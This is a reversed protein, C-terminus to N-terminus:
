LSWSLSWLHYEVFLKLSSSNVEVKHEAFLEVSFIDKSEIFDDHEDVNSMDEYEKWKYVYTSVDGASKEGEEFEYLQPFPIPRNPKILVSDIIDM